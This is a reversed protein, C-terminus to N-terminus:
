LFPARQWRSEMAATAASVSVGSQLKSSRLNENRAPGNEGHREEVDGVVALFEQEFAEGLLDAM